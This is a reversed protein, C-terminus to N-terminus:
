VQSRVMEHISQAINSKSRGKSKNSNGNFAIELTEMANGASLISYITVRVYVLTCADTLFM